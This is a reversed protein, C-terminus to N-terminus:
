GISATGAVRRGGVWVEAINARSAGYIIKQLVAEHDDRDAFRRITGDPHEIDISVADFHQGVSFTGIPLDLAEGGGATALHFATRWDIAAGARGRRAPPLNADVGDALLRSAAVAMRCADLLSASPGGSIDTGLGVNLRKALARRLPFVANSFYVNSLPCHAIGASRAGILDMDDDSVFNGHALV